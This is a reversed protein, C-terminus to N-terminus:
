KSFIRCTGVLDSILCVDAMRPILQPLLCLFKYTPIQPLLKKLHQIVDQNSSNSLWLSTIRFVFLNYKEGEKLSLLYYKLALNLFSDREIKSNKIENEDIASQKAAIQYAMRKERNQNWGLEQRLELALDQQTNILNQKIEFLPSALYENLQEYNSDAFKAISAYCDTLHIADNSQVISKLYYNQIIERSNESKTKAMWDGYIRLGKAKLEGTVENKRVYHNLLFRGIEHEGREWLIRAREIKLKEIIEKPTRNLNNTYNLMRIATEYKKEERATEIINCYTQCLMLQLDNYIDCKEMKDLAIKIFITRNSWISEMLGFDSFRISDQKRWRHFLNWLNQKNLSNVSGVFEELEKLTQLESIPLYLNKTSELNCNLLKNLVTQRARRIDNQFTADDDALFAKLAFYYCKDFCDNDSHDTINAKFTTDLLSWDSLQTACKYQLPTPIVSDTKMKLMSNLSYYMGSSKLSRILGNENEENGMSLQIDHHLLSMNWNKVHEYHQIEAATELIHMYGCGHIGDSNGIESHCERLIETLAFGEEPFLECITNVDIFSYNGRRKQESWLELYFISTFYASCHLAAKALNIYNM